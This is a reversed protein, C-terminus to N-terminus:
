GVGVATWGDAIAREVASGAGFLDRAAQITAARAVSFTAGAPLLQTFARYFAREIQARNASGVGAVTLGSTRNTGGEIALYFAQNPISSNIHVGGNDEAGLFRASYHDPDGFQSPNAMSRLGGPRIADEGVLYDARGPVNGPPQFFFEVSVAMLDSFSENLAGSENEYILQSTFDTVGHALEHAVVDLSGSLFDWVQGGLTLGSPLGVGYVMVGDGAYFANLYFANIIEDTQSFFQERRVPNVLSTMPLDRGDLGRRGFRKFFYDYTLGAYVHADVTGGERWDNDSDSALDGAGLGVVGNLFDITRDIDGQMDFTVISPPRLLDQAVFRGGQAQVSIKKRDGLVGRADGVIAQSRLDSRQKLVAGSHADLFYTTLSGGSMVRARYALAYRENALPLVVLEPRRSPGLTVGTLERLADTAEETSLTPQVDVEIGDYLRGFISITLGDAFQRTVDGGVVRVGQHYQDLREHTRGPVLPDPERRRLVLADDRMMQDLRNDWSQLQALDGLPQITMLGPHDQGIAPTSWAVCAAGVLVGLTLAKRYDM